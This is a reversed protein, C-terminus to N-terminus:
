EAQGTETLAKLRKYQEGMVRDVVPALKDPDRAAIELQVPKGVPPGAEAVRTEVRIGPIGATRARIEAELPGSDASGAAPSAALAALTLTLMALPRRRM